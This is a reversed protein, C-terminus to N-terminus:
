PMFSRPWLFPFSYDAYAPLWWAHTQTDARVLSSYEMADPVFGDERMEQMVKKATAVDQASSCANVM